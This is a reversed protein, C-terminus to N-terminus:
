KKKVPSVLEPAFFQVSGIVNNLTDDDDNDFVASVGFDILIPEDKQSLVVNDPKIDRHVIGAITHCYFIAGAIGRFINHVKEVPLGRKSDKVISMLSGKSHYDMVLRLKNHAPDNMVEHLKIINPHHMAKMIEIEKLVSMFASEHKSINKKKLFDKKMIKMAYRQNDDENM